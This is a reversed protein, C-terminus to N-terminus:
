VRQHTYYVRDGEIKYGFLYRNFEESSVSYYCRDIWEGNKFLDNKKIEILQYGMKEVLRRSPINDLDIVSNIKNLGYIDFGYVLRFFLSFSGLGRSKQTPSVFVYGEAEDDKINTFGTMAVPIENHTLVLDVRTVDISVKEFWKETDDLTINSSINMSRNVRADNLWEVRHPLDDLLLPRLCYRNARAISLLTGRSSPIVNVDTRRLVNVITKIVLLVDNKFSITEVYEVDHELKEDWTFTNRGLVQSKGTIGPRVSHRLKERNTYWPLYEVLLPRPGVFSMDGKLVNFLQPLEDLSTKRIISGIKTLREKDPLLNGNEDKMDNMSKFKIIHFIKEDKGPRAQVFFPNGRNAIALTISILILLPAALALAVFSLLFDLVRKLIAKYM